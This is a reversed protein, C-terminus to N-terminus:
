DQLLSKIVTEMKMVANNWNFRQVFNNGRRALAIRENNNEILYCIRDAMQLPNKVDVLLATDKDLAYERHGDIDTCVLACGCFMSEVSVLGFGETFSNSIFIANRNYIDRLDGPDRYYTIWEPLENPSPCVGFMEVQLAPFKKKVMFLAELGYKSGKIEQISYNMAITEPIRNEIDKTVKYIKDDIGNEIVFVPNSSHEKLINKLFPAVVLNTIGKINYSKYLLDEHGTWNEFGQILNIKKGKRESLGGMELVTSWWTGIVIDADPIYEEKVEPVYSMKVQSDFEFWKNTRFGEIFSLIYRMVYPLRYNMYQTRIPFVLHIQYGRKALRNAYEYMIRFGGAPRRPKFPLIFTIKVSKTM